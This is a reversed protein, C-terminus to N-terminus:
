GNLNWAQLTVDVTRVNGGDDITLQVQDNVQHQDIAILLDDMTPMAEGDLATIVEGGTPLTASNLNGSAGHLGAQDAASGPQVAIVYVGQTVDLGAEQANTPTVTTGSIGLQPHQVEQGAILEPLFREARNVPIALGIGVFVSQGTPNEIATNIGIVEGALNFLPGGSNGPNIAADTQIVGPVPRGIPSGTSRSIGSVIGETVTFEFDFPNGIAIVADGPRVDDSNGLTAPVLEHASADVQILALDSGPDTGLVTAPLITEDWLKVRVDSASEVVHYNTLIHGQDDIVIGSGLGSQTGSATQTTVGVAVVSQHVRDFLDSVDATSSTVVPQQTGDGGSDAIGATAGSDGNDTALAGILIGVALAISIATTASLAVIWRRANM